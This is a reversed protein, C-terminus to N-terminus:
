AMDNVVGYQKNYELLSGKNELNIFRQDINDNTRLIEEVLEVVKHRQVEVLNVHSFFKQYPDKEYLGNLLQYLGNAEPTRLKKDDCQAFNGLFIFKSLKGAKGVRTAIASITNIDLNQAEDIIFYVQNMSRGRISQISDFFVKKKSDNDGMYLISDKIMGTSDMLELNDLFPAVYPHLKAEADGPLFGQPTGIEVQLRTYILKRYEQEEIVKELGVAQSLLSKGTGAPGTLFTFPKDDTLAQLALKQEENQATIGFYSM